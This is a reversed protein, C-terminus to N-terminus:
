AAAGTETREVTLPGLNYKAYRREWMATHEDAFQASNTSFERVLDGGDDTIRVHISLAM